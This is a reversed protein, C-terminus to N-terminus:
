PATWVASPSPVGTSLEGGVERGIGRLERRLETRIARAGFGRATRDEVVQELRQNVRQLFPERHTFNHPSPHGLPIGNAADNVDVGYRELLGRSRAGPVWHGMNGGSPVIHAAAQGRSVPRGERRMNRRLRRANQRCTLLGLYDIWLLPNLVYGRPNPGADMGLPDPSLYTATTPDYHRFYNYHLETEADYYQGPFRLPTYADANESWTALGWLTASARWAIDGAESVLETPTGVLDTVIAFFREDILHQPDDASTRRETQTLPRTNDRDWTLTVDEPGDVTHTTQEVLHPGDWTFRTEEAVTFGDPGLRQKATRRGAPDYLYRWVTGDPTVVSTLCDEADWTYRWIDPKRSLRTKRRLVVRGATDYEYHVSGARTVRNGDYARDGRAEPAPQRDPWAAQTQNGSEDYAYSEAWGAARIGTIRGAGDVDFTRRGFTRNDLATLSGDARYTFTEQKLPGDPASLTRGTLRDEADWSQTLALGHNGLRRTTERGVLDYASDITLGAATLTTRNGAADYSYTATAGTPTTRRTPRGLADYTTTLARGDVAEATIRGAPDYAYSLTADPGTARLIRGNQDHTFVTARGDVVKRAQNGVIDYSFASIQGLSNTCRTLQGAADHVYAITRDDFDTEATLLGSADYTYDWTLQRPNTVRTLRLETDHTFTHRAGDPTTRSKLLDFGGYTFRTVQGLADTHALCNGEGDYTWEETSGDPDTRSTQHGEISWTLRTTATLPDILAVNRGFPDYMIRTQAGLPDTASVPQGAANNVFRQVAGTPDTLSALAGTEDRTFSVTAGMPDTMSTCNGREDWEQRIVSGDYGTLVVPLNLENFETSSTAGDPLHVATLNGAHDWEMRTTRGLPDTRSLLQDRHNWEQLSTHGLPDTEAILQYADNFQYCTAHGLSDVAVTRHAVDDYEFTYNLIGDMGRGTVCRGEDDYEFRYWFGNRDEWGTMRHRNDYTFKLPLGSSNYVESLDGNADYGYRVLAPRESHSSLSLEVIRGNECTVGIRYGGHHVMEAPTGDATYAISIANGNRDSILSLHLESPSRAPLARFRLTQGTEPRHVTLDGEDWSLPWHPGEVPLVPVDLDPVPYTLVMGDDVVLRAGTADLLLRQDLTSTWGRGLLRGSHVGTRYHREFLLPLMGDLSVDTASMVMQGTAMDIPDGRTFLKKMQRGLSRTSKGLGKMGLAMGKLGGKGLAKMGKALKGLSTLGKGGPICDLAAFAVDWLSAQGKAYKNLTDALVVLAAILVIAGLIPGGIIMAIIGVVAVVVKCVAVITDWNDSFWDGVEEWWKRNHIGADSAEDIKTKATHAAEE